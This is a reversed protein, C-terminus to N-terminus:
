GDFRQRWKRFIIIVRNEGNFIDCCKYYKLNTTDSWWDYCLIECM